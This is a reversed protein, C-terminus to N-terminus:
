VSHLYTRTRYQYTLSSISNANKALFLSLSRNIVRNRDWDNNNKIFEAIEQYIAEDIEINLTIKSESSM